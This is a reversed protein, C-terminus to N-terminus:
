ECDCWLSVVKKKFLRFFCRLLLIVCHLSARNSRGGGLLMFSTVCFHGVIWVLNLPMKM